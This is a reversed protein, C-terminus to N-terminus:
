FETIVPIPMGICLTHVSAEQQHAWVPTTSRRLELHAGTWGLSRDEDPFKTRKHSKRGDTPTPGCFGGYTPATDSASSRGVIEKKPPCFIETQEERGDTSSHHRDRLRLKEGDNSHNPFRCESLPIPPIMKQFSLEGRHLITGLALSTAKNSYRAAM